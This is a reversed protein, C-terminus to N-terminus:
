NQTFTKEVSNTKRREQNTKEHNQNNDEM